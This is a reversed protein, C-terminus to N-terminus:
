VPKGQAWFKKVIKFLFKDPDDCLVYCDEGKCIQGEIEPKESESFGLEIEGTKERRFFSMTLFKGSELKRTAYILPDLNDFSEQEPKPEEKKEFKLIKSM